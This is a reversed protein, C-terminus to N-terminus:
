NRNIADLLQEADIPKTLVESALSLDADSGGAEEHRIKATTSGATLVIIPLNPQRKKIEKILKFGDMGPMMLDTIVLDFGQDLKALADQGSLATKLHYGESSLIMDISEIVFPSDDVVLIKKSM